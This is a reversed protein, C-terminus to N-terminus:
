FFGEPYQMTVCHLSGRQRVLAKCNIGIIERDPFAEQLRSIAIIDNGTGYTPVLVAGNIILFNAYTVPLRGGDDYIEDAMPLPILRYPEGNHSVFASLEYEMMKLRHYHRDNPNDCKVYAITEEDCFRAVTDIHGDTDDGDLWGSFTWLVREIGLVRNLYIEIQERSYTSNRNDSLLCNGTTLITGRGDSEISGGELIFNQLNHYLVSKDFYDERYLKGAVLNDKNAVYKLGWGNFGFDLLIPTNNVFFSLAGYDRTWTDNYNVSACILNKKQEIDFHKKVEEPDPSVVILKERKIIEKSFSVYCEITEELNSNWDTGKHPWAILVGSQPFWEPPFFINM